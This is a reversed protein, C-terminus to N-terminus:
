CIFSGRPGQSKQWEQMQVSSHPVFFFSMGVSLMSGFRLTDNKKHAGRDTVM